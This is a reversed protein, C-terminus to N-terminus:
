ARGNRHSFFSGWLGKLALPVVPVPDRAIMREIGPRFRDVDGDRTLHGEPFICVAEGAALAASIADFAQKLMVPDDRGSAVPIAGATRFIFNLLRMRYIRADIVFRVPRRCAGIILLADMYSVHNCVLVVPGTEPIRDLDRHRFRYMAHTVAWVLFRMAFEPVLTYIYIAVAANALALFLFFLPISIGAVGLLFAGAIAALVMFLANMVNNAAIVRARVRPHSRTQLLAFLPVIYLGGSVGILIFDGMLRFAGPHHLFQQLTMLGDVAPLRCAWFLDLSFLSLGFSGLPVLGLEVKKDSLRECLLSGVGVGVSFLTLLLTVLSEGGRLVDRTFGPLQTLYVAGLFWFWSIGLISLFIPRERRADRLMKMTQGVINWHIELNPAHAAAAPIRRSALWGALAIGVVVTATIRPGHTTQILIGGGMTGMLIAVFTGMEVLANGGVIEHSELHDPMISYKVPGFFASQTGMLFLLGLLIGRSDTWFAIAAVTMILVEAMKIRRILVSKETKDTIQGATASFLFFPLIFLGAALNVVVDPALALTQGAQFAILLMLANKFINDNLAGLFQTWFFPAFRRTALLNVVGRRGSPSPPPPTDSCRNVDVPMAKAAALTDPKDM